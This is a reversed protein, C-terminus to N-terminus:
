RLNKIKEGTSKNKRRQHGRDRTEPSQLMVVTTDTETGGMENWSSLWM